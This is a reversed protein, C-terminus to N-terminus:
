YENYHLTSVTITKEEYDVMINFDHAAIYSSSDELMFPIAYPSCYTLTDADLDKLLYPLELYDTLSGIDTVLFVYHNSFKLKGPDLVITGYITIEQKQRIQMNGSLKYTTKASQLIFPGFSDGVEYRKLVDPDSEDYAYAADEYLYGESPLEHRVSSQNGSSNSLEAGPSAPNDIIGIKGVIGLNLLLAFVGIMVAATCVASMIATRRISRRTNDPRVSIGKQSELWFNMDENAEGILEEDLGSFIQVFKDDNM